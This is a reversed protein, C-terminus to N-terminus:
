LFCNDQLPFLALKPVHPKCQWSCAPHPARNFLSLADRVSAKVRRSGWRSPVHKLARTSATHDIFTVSRRLVRPCRTSLGFKMHYNLHWPKSTSLAPKSMNGGDLLFHLQDKLEVRHIPYGVLLVIIRTDAAVRNIRNEEAIGFGM